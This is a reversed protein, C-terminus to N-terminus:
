YNIKFRKQGDSPIYFTETFIDAPEGTSQAVLTRNTKIFDPAENEIALIKYRNKTTVPLESIADKKLILFTENEDISGGKLIKNRDSSPFSM